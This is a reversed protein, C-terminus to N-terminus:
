EACWGNQLTITSVHTETTRHFSMTQGYNAIEEAIRVRWKFCVTFM